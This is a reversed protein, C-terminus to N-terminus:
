HVTRRSPRDGESHWHLWYGAETGETCYGIFITADQPDDVESGDEDLMLTLYGRQLGGTLRSRLTFTGLICDPCTCHDKGSDRM